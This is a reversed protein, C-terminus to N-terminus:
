RTPVGDIRVNIHFREKGTRPDPRVPTRFTANSFAASSELIEILRSSTETFGFISLDEGNIRLQNLWTDDPLRKTLEDLVAIVPVTKKRERELAGRVDSLRAIEARLRAAERADKRLAEVERSLTEVQGKKQVVPAVLNAIALGLTLLGFLAALFADPGIRRSGHDAPLFNINPDPRGAADAIGARFPRLGVSALRAVTEDVLPRPAVYLDVEIEAAAADRYRVAVDFYADAGSFPTRREMEYRAADRLDGEAAAPLTLKQRLLGDDPLVLAVATARNGSAAIERPLEVPSNTEVGIDGIHTFDNGTPRYLAIRDSKRAAYLLSTEDRFWTRIPAPVFGLLESCWWHFFAGIRATVHRHKAQWFGDRAITAAIIRTQGIHFM